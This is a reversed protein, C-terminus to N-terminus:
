KAYPIDTKVRSTSSAGTTNLWEQEVQQMSLEFYTPDNLYDVGSALYSFAFDFRNKGPKLVEVDKTVDTVLSSVSVRTDRKTLM